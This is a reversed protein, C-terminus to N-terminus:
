KHVDVLRIQTRTKKTALYQELVDFDAGAADLDMREENSADSKPQEEIFKIIRERDSLMITHLIQDCRATELAGEEDVPDDDSGYGSHRRWHKDRRENLAIQADEINVIANEIGEAVLELKRLRNRDM